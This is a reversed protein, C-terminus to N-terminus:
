PTKEFTLKAEGHHEKALTMVLEETEQAAYHVLFYRNWENRVPMASRLPHTADLESAEIFAKGNLTLVFGPRKSGPEALACQKKSYLAIFFYEGEYYTEPEVRNLYVASVVAKTQSEDALTATRMQTIAREYASEMTFFDFATTQTCGSLLALLAGIAVIKVM